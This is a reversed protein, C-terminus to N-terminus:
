AFGFFGFGKFKSNAIIIGFGFFVVGGVLVPKGPQRCGKLNGDFVRESFSQFPKKKAIGLGIGAVLLLAVRSRGTSSGQAEPSGQRGGM